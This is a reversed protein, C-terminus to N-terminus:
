AGPPNLRTDLVLRAQALPRYRGAAREPRFVVNWSFKSVVSPFAVFPSADLLAAGWGQQGASPIGGHLWAPNPVDAPEVVKVDAPDNIVMSTLLFPQTDLVDFGRHVASELITTSPDFSCYVVKLGKPNWRGGKFEAGIGSDWTPAHMAADLRWAVIPGGLALGGPLPTM